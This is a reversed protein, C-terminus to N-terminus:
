IVPSGRKIVFTRGNNIGGKPGNRKIFRGTFGVQKLLLIYPSFTKRQDLVVHEDPRKAIALLHFQFATVGKFKKAMKVNTDLWAAFDTEADPDAMRWANKYVGVQHDIIQDIAKELHDSKSLFM